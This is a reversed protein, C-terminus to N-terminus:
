RNEFVYSLFESWLHEKCFSNRYSKDMHARPFYISCGLMKPCQPGSVSVLLAQRITCILAAIVERIDQIEETCEVADLEQWLQELFTILDVYMGILSYSSSKLRAKCILDHFNAISRIRHVFADCTSAIDDFFILDFASLCFRERGQMKQESGYSYVLQRVQTYLPASSLLVSFSRYDLSDRELADQSAICYSVSHRLEYGVELLAMHCSDFCVVDIKRGELVGQQLKSFISALSVVSVGPVSSTTLLLSKSDMMQVIAYCYNAHTKAMYRYYPTDGEDPEFVWKGATKDFEPTIIGTSHGSLIVMTRENSSGSFARECGAYIVELTNQAKEVKSREVYGHMCHVQIIHDSMEVDIDITLSGSTDEQLLQEIQLLNKEVSASEDQIYLYIRWPEAEISNCLFSLFFLISFIQKKKSM